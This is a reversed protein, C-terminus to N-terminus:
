PAAEEVALVTQISRVSGLHLQGAAWGLRLTGAPAPAVWRVVGTRPELAWVLNSSEPRRALVYVLEDGWAIPPTDSGADLSWLADGTAADLAVIQADSLVLVVKHVDSAHGWGAHAGGAMLREWRPEGSAMDYAVVRWPAERNPAFYLAGADAIYLALKGGGPEALRVFRQEEGTYPYLKRLGSHDAVFLSKGVGVPAFGSWLHLEGSWRVQGDERNVCLAQVGTDWLTAGCSLHPALDAVSAGRFTAQFTASHASRDMSQSWLRKGDKDWRVLRMDLSTGEGVRQPLAYAMLRSGDEARKYGEVQCGFLMAGLRAEEEVPFIEHPAGEHEFIDHCSPFVETAALKFARLLADPPPKRLDGVLKAEGVSRPAASVPPPTPAPSRECGMLALAACLAILHCRIV